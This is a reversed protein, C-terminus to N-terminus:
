ISGSILTFIQIYGYTVAALVCYIFLAFVAGISGVFLMEAAGYTYHDDLYNITNEV